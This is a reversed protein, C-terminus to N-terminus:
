DSRLAQIQRWVAVPDFGILKELDPPTHTSQKVRDFAAGWPRQTEFWSAVGFREALGRVAVLAARGVDLGLPVAVAASVPSLIVERSAVAAAWAGPHHERALRRFTSAEAYCGLSLPGLHSEAARALHRYDRRYDGSILGMERRLVDPGLVRDIGYTQRRAGVCTWLEGREFVGVLLSEGVSCVADLARVVAKDSPAPWTSLRFPWFELLGDEELERAAAWFEGCQQLYEQEPRLRDAFRDMLEDLAGVSLRVAWRAQHEEALESLEAPWSQGRPELRGGRTSLLKCLRAERTVAVIGGRRKRSVPVETSPFDRHDARVPAQREAPASAPQRLLELLNRWDASSFGELRVDRTLM